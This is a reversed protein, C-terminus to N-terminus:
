SRGREMQEGYWANKGTMPGAMGILIEAEVARACFAAALMIAAALWRRPVM